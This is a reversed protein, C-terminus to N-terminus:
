AKGFDRLAQAVPEERECDPCVPLNTHTWEDGIPVWWKGCVAQVAKGTIYSETLHEKRSYHLYSPPMSKVTRPAGGGDALDLAMILTARSVALLLKFSSGPIQEIMSEPVGLVGVLAQVYDLFKSHEKQWWPIVVTIMDMEKHAVEVDWLEFPITEVSVHAELERFVAIAEREHAVATKLAQLTSVLAEEVFRQNAEQHQHLRLIELDLKAPGFKGSQKMAKVSEQVESHFHDHIAAYILWAYDGGDHIVAGRWAPKVPDRSEFVPDAFSRYREFIGQDFRQQIYTVLTVEEQSYRVADCLYNLRVEPETAKAANEYALACRPPLKRSKNLTKLVSITPRVSVM